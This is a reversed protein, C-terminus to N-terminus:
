LEGLSFMIKLTAGIVLLYVGLDFLLPTGLEVAGAIPLVFEAWQGYLFPHGGLWPLAAAALAIVLGWAALARPEIRLSRQASSVGSALSHMVFAAAAILGGSFGGGPRDHGTILMFVSFLLMLPQFFRVVVEFILSKM